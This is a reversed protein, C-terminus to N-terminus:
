EIEGVIKDVDWDLVKAGLDSLAKPTKDKVADRHLRVGFVKKGLEAAKRIEWDVWDSRATAGGILCITVSVAKIKETIKTKIYPASTSSIPEKVSYDDFELDGNKNKAQGRFLHVLSEDEIVFSLFVHKAM